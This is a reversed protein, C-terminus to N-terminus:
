NYDEGDEFVHDGLKMHAPNCCGVNGCKHLVPRDSPDFGKLLAFAVRHAFFADADLLAIIGYGADNKRAAWPWCDTSERVDVRSWFRDKQRQTLEPLPKM